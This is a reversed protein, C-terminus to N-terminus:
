MALLTRMMEDVTSVLRAAAQFARQQKMLNIAEEDLSVGSLAERQAMLTEQVTLATEATNSADQVSLAVGNIMADYKDKLTVGGLSNMAQTELQAIARATQNDGLQGNKAAALLTPNTKLDARVDIDAATNGQFFGNLGLSALVGSSDQSFSLEVTSNESALKLKGGTITASVGTIADLSARLSDLTTDDGGAGDLDVQVLTSTVLGSGKQKVHLVFSGNKPVFDLMAEPANLAAATDSVANTATISTLGEVGQGSAHLTNLERILSGALTDIEEIVSELQGSMAFVAGIQGTRVGLPAGDDGATLRPVLQDGEAELEFHVGRNRSALVVPESGVLVNVMGDGTDQVKIDMLTSLSKLVEDRQDRLGNAMAGGSGEAQAIQVNLDAVQGCLADAQTALFGMRQNVDDRLADLRSRTDRFSAALSLGGSIVLQRLGIDQPKNALNSWANFFESLRSSIDQDGLENFVAEVRGLWQQRAQGGEADSISNRLRGELAEDIQREVSVLNVGTGVMVGPKLTRDTNPTLKAVQRTHGANGANAINNSTVQIAAQHTALATKGINLASILSM